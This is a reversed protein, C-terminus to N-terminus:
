SEAIRKRQGRWRRRLTLNPRPGPPADAAIKLILKADNQGAAIAVPVATIGKMGEPLMELKFGDKYDFLRAVKITITKDTGHQAVADPEAVSLKAVQKPIVVLSFKADHTLSVNGNVVGIARVILELKAPPADPDIKLIFKADDKGPAITVEPASVGKVGPPLVLQVKFADTYDFLRAVKVIIEKDNGHQVVPNVDNVTLTAVQKPLIVLQFPTSPLITNVPKGKPDPTIPAFGRFVINYNGPVANAAVTLVAQQDDKGPTFTLPAFTVGVPLETPVPTVQFNTKFAADLRILKTPLEVKDGLSVAVKDKTVILKGPAKDRVSIVLSRDLRTVGPLNQQVPTPWTITAPRAERVLKQGNVTATGKITVAGVFAEADDAAMLSLLTSKQNGGIVQSPCTVGKPLGAMELIIEGKFGDMRQAFVMFNQVGGLNVHASDPRYDEAPMAILRFDPREPAIRLRYVQRPDATTESSHSSVLIHYKGDAPVVFRYQSPDRSLSFYAKPNLIDPNDDQLTIEQKTALNQLSYYLDTPAGLRDSLLDIVYVDGKKAEFAYWDRDRAKDMRGAVECPVKIPQASEPTDNNEVELILPDRAFTLMVPNSQGAPTKLRYEFGDLLGQPPPIMGSFTMRTLMQADVPATVTGNAKEMARGDVISMPDIKGGPLNRGYLTLPTTKGPEVVAPFVADVWPATSISLRYYYETNAASYTFQNVRVFYVGDDAATVDTVNDCGPLPRSYAIERQNSNYVKVEPYLRSDIGATMCSIVVRQGKKATFSYYDVDTAAGITGNITSGIDVKQAQEVDDNNEKEMVEELDGVQFARPNTVGINTVLRVDHIGLPVDKGITITFKPPGPPVPKPQAKPDKPDVKPAPPLVLVATIGPHSFLLAEPQGSNPAAACSKSRQQTFPLGARLLEIVAEALQVGTTWAEDVGSGTLMNTSGSGEGIRAFGDGSLFPEGHLGSEELSKAGWSRLTGHKLYRWLAPHQMYHQLYRYATRQPNGLWSPVFIGVSVLRDPHVYLFGFIEPEPFGFTHWVTGPELTTDEPLEIVFKMGVAWERRAHGAPLGFREDLASALQASPATASSPSSRASTWAPCSAM